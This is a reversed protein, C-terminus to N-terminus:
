GTNRRLALVAVDDDLKGGARNKAGAVLKEALSDSDAPL